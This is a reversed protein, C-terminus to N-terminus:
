KPKRFLKFGEMEKLHREREASEAILAGFFGSLGLVSYGDLKEKEM